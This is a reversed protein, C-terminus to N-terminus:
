YKIETNNMEVTHIGKKHGLWRVLTAYGTQKSRMQMWCVVISLNKKYLNQIPNEIAYLVLVTYLVPDPQARVSTRRNKCYALLRRGEHSSLRRPKVKRPLNAMIRGCFDNQCPTSVGGDGVM